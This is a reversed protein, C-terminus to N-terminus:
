DITDPIVVDEESGFYGTLKATGDENVIYAYDGSFTHGYQKLENYFSTSYASASFGSLSFMSVTLIVALLLSIAKKM